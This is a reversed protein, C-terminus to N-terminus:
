ATVSSSKNSNNSVGLITNLATGMSQLQSLTKEMASFQNQMRTMDRDVRDQIAKIQADLRAQQTDISKQATAIVGTSGDTLRSLLDSTRAAVGSTETAEIEVVRSLGDAANVGLVKLRLQKTVLNVVFSNVAQTNDRISSVTEWDSEV